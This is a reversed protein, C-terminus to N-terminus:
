PASFGGQQAHNGAQFLGAASGDGDATAIDGVHIGGISVDGHHKLVVRQVRVLACLLVHGESQSKALHGFCFSFSPDRLGRLHQPDFLQQVSLGTRHRTPLLLPDGQAPGNDSIRRAEQKILGQGVEVGLHAVVRTGLQPTQVLLQLGGADVDGM